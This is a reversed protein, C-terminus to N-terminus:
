TVVEVEEDDDFGALELVRFVAEHPQTGDDGPNEICIANTEGEFSGGNPPLCKIFVADTNCPAVFPRKFMAGVPLEGFTM